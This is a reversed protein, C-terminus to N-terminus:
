LGNSVKNSFMLILQLYIFSQYTYNLKDKRLMVRDVRKLNNISHEVCVRKKLLLKTKKNHEPLIKHKYKKNETIVKIKRNQLNYILNQSYAKDAILKIATSKNFKIGINNVTPQVLTVDSNSAKPAIIVSLVNNYQDCILSVKTAKKKKNSHQYAISESGYKNVMFSTDIFLNINKSKKIDKLKLYYKHLM